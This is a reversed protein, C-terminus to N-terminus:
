VFFDAVMRDLAQTVKPDTIYEQYLGLVGIRTNAVYHQVVYSADWSELGHKILGAKLDAPFLCRNFWALQDLTYRGAPNSAM